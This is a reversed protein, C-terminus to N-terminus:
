LGHIHNQNSLRKAVASLFRRYISRLSVISQFSKPNGDRGKKKKKEQRLSKRESGCEMDPPPPLAGARWKGVALLFGLLRLLLGLMRSQNM